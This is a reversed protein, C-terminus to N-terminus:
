GRHMNNMFCPSKELLCSGFQFKKGRKCHPNKGQRNPRVLGGGDLIPNEVTNEELVMRPDFQLWNGDPLQGFVPADNQEIVAAIDDCVLDSLGNGDALIFDGGESLTSDIQELAGASISPLNVATARCM